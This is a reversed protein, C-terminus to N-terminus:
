YLVTRHLVSCYLLSCQVVVGSSWNTAAICNGVQQITNCQVTNHRVTSNQVRSFQGTRYQISNYQATNKQITNQEVTSYRLTYYVLVTCHLAFCYLVACYPLSWGTPDRRGVFLAMLVRQISLLILLKQTLDEPTTTYHAYARM